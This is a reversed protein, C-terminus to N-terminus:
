TTGNKCQMLAFLMIFARSIDGELSVRNFLCHFQHTIVIKIVRLQGILWRLMTNVLASTIYVHASTLIREKEYKVHEFQFLVPM